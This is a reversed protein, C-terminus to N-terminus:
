QVIAKGNQQSVWGAFEERRTADLIEFCVLTGQVTKNVSGARRGLRVKSVWPTPLFPYIGSPLVIQSVSSGFVKGATEIFKRVEGLEQDAFQVCMVGAPVHCATDLVLQPSKRIIKAGSSDIQLVATDAYLVVKLAFPIQPLELESKPGTRFRLPADAREREAQLIATAGTDSAQYRVTAYGDETLFNCSLADTDCARYLLFHVPKISNDPREVIAIKQASVSAGVLVVAITGFVICLRLQVHQQAVRAFPFM